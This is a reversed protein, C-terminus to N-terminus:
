GIAQVTTGKYYNALCKGGYSIGVIGGVHIDGHSYSYDSARISSSNNNVIACNEVIGAKMMGVLGGAFNNGRIKVKDINIDYLEGTLCGILGVGYKPKTSTEDVQHRLENDRVEFNSLTHGLGYIKGAFVHAGYDSSSFGIGYIVKGNFDIDNTIVFTKNYNEYKDESYNEINFYRVFDEYSAIEIVDQEHEKVYDYTYEEHSMYYADAKFRQGDNNIFILPVQSDKVDVFYSRSIEIVNNALVNYQVSKGFCKVVLNTLDITNDLQIKINDSDNEYVIDKGINLLSDVQFTLTNSHVNSYASTAYISLETISVSEDITLIDGDITIGSLSAASAHYVIGENADSPEYSAQLKYSAGAKLVSISSSLTLQSIKNNLKITLSDTFTVDGYVLSAHVIIEDTKANMTHLVNNDMYAGGNKDISYTISNQYEGAFSAPYIFTNLTITDDKFYVEKLVARDIEIRRVDYEKLTSKLTPLQGVEFNWVESPFKNEWNLSKLEEISNALLCTNDVLGFGVFLESNLSKAAYCNIIDGENSGVFSGFYTDSIVDGLSYCNEIIGFNNGAFGGVYRYANEGSYVEMKVDAWCNSITGSNSGVFGGSYSSVKFEGTVGLNKVIASSTLYGFLGCNFSRVDQRIAKINKITHGNGDFTGRFAYRTAINPDEVDDYLGIPTWGKGDNYGKGDLSLYDSMDIDNMLIYYGQLSEISDNISALDEPEYIFKTAVVVTVKIANRSTIIKFVNEGAFLTNLYDSSIKLTSNEIDYSYKSADIIANKENTLALIGEDKWDDHGQFDIVFTARLQSDKEVVQLDTEVTIFDKTMTYFTKEINVDNHTYAVVVFPTNDSVKSTFAVKGTFEDITVGPVREKLKYTVAYPLSAKATVFEGDVVYNSLNQFTLESTEYDRLLTVIVPLSQSEKYKAVYMVQTFNALDDGYTFTGTEQNLNINEYTGGVIEYTVGKLKGEVTVKDGSHIQYEDMTFSLSPTNSSCGTMLGLALLSSVFLIKKKM